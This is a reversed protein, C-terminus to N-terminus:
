IAARFISVNASNSSCVALGFSGLDSLSVSCLMAARFHFMRKGTEM